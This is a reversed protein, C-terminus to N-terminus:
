HNWFIHIEDHATEITFVDGGMEMDRGMREYDIYCELHKPIESTQETLERAYDELSKYEGQYHEEMSTEAYEFDGHFNALVAAGLTGHEEIFLAKQQVSSLGEYESIEVGEFGEYDHIAVEESNEEPSCKLLSDIEEQIENLDLTADVWVGHLKGANYAALDAIYIKIDASM